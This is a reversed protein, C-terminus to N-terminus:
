SPQQPQQQEDAPPQQRQEKEEEWLLKLRSVKNLQILKDNEIEALCRMNREYSDKVEIIKREYMNITKQLYELHRKQKTVRKVEDRYLKDAHQVQSYLSM